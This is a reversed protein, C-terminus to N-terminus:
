NAGQIRRQYWDLGLMYYTYFDPNTNTLLDFTLNLTLKQSVNYSDFM